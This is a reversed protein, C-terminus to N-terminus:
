EDVPYFSLKCFVSGATEAKVYVPVTEFTSVYKFDSWYEAAKYNSEAEKPVLFHYDAEVTSNDLTPPTTALSAIVELSTCGRFVCEDLSEVSTGLVVSKLNQCDRVVDMGLTTVSNPVVLHELGSQRFCSNGLTVLSNPLDISKLMTCYRFADTGINKLGNGLKVSELAACSKFQSSSIETVGNGISISRLNPYAYRDFFNDISTLGDGM